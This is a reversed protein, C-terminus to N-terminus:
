SHASVFRAIDDRLPARDRFGPALAVIIGMHGVNPYTIEEVKAGTTRLHAELKGHGELVEPKESSGAVLLMPPAQRHHLHRAADRARRGGFTDRIIADHDDSM